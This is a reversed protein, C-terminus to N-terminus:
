TISIGEKYYGFHHLSDWVMISDPQSTYQHGISPIIKINYYSIWDQYGHATSKFWWELIVGWMNFM